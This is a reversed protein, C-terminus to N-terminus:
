SNTDYIYDCASCMTLFVNYKGSRRGREETRVIQNKREHCGPCLPPQEQQLENMSKELSTLRKEIKTMSEKLTKSLELIYSMMSIQQQALDTTREHVLQSLEAM